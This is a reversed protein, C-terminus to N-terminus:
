YYPRKNFSTFFLVNLSCSYMFFHPSFMFMRLLLFVSESKTVIQWTINFYSYCLWICKEYTTCLMVQEEHQPQPKKRIPPLVSVPQQRTAVAPKPLPSPVSRSPPPLRSVQHLTSPPKALSENPKPLPRTPMNRPENPTSAPAQNRDESLLFFNDMNNKIKTIHSLEFFFLRHCALPWQLSWDTWKYWHAGLNNHQNSTMEVGIAAWICLLLVSERCSNAPSHNGWSSHSIWLEM